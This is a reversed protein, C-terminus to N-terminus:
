QYHTFRVKPVGTEYCPNGVASVASLELILVNIASFGATLSGITTALVLKNRM